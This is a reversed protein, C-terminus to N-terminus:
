RGKRIRERGKGMEKLKSTKKSKGKQEEDKMKRTGEGSEMGRKEKEKKRCTEGGMANERKQKHGKRGKM